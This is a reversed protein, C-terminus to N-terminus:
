PSEDSGPCYGDEGSADCDYYGGTNFLQVLRLLESLSIEWDQEIYDSDHPECGIATSKGPAYGDEGKEECHYANSNYFQILRLLESLDIRKDHNIDASHKEETLWRAYYADVCNEFLYYQGETTPHVGDPAQSSDLPRYNKEGISYEPDGGPYPAYDPAQGPVTVVGAEYVDPVGLRNQLLGWNQVFYCRETNLAIEKVRRGVEVFADNFMRQNVNPISNGDSYADLALELDMYEYFSILLRLDQRLGLIYDVITQIHNTIATYRVDLEEPTDTALFYPVDLFDVGGVTLHIIDITPYEQLSDVIKQRINATNNAWDEARSGGIATKTGEVDYQSLGKDALVQDCVKWLWLSETYSDGVLLIRKTRSEAKALEAEVFGVTVLFVCVAMCSTRLLSNYRTGTM